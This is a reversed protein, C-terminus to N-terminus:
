VPALPLEIRFISGRKKAARVSIRGGMRELIQYSISLGLGTGEGTEKTTFFPDFIFPLVEPDIGTGDDEVEIGAWGNERSARIWLNGYGSIAQTANILLNVLVQQLDSANAMVPPIDPIELHVEARHKIEPDAVCLASTIEAKINVRTLKGTGMRSYQRMNQVIEHIRAAGEASEDILESMRMVTEEAAKSGSGRREDGNAAIKALGELERRMSRLNMSVYTIPNNIEHGIGSALRGIAALKDTQAVQSQLQRLARLDRAVGVVGIFDGTNDILASTSLAVPVRGGDRTRLAVEASQFDSFAGGGQGAQRLSNPPVEILDSLPMGRLSERSRGTLYTAAANTHLLRGHQDILFVADPITALIESSVSEPSILPEGYVIMAYIFAGLMLTTALTAVHFVQIEMLPLLADSLTGAIIPIASAIILLRARRQGRRSTTERLYRFNHLLGATFCCGLHALYVVYLSTPHYGWGWSAGEVRDFLPAGLLSIAGVLLPVGYAFLQVSRRGALHEGETLNLVFLLYLGGLPLFGPMGLHLWRLAVDATPANNWLFECFAWWGLATFFRGLARNAPARSDRSLVLLVLSFALTSWLLSFPTHLPM